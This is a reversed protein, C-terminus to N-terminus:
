LVAEQNVDMGRAVHPGGESKINKHKRLLSVSPQKPTTKRTVTYTYCATSYKNKLLTSLGIILYRLLYCSYHLLDFKKNISWFYNCNSVTINEFFPRIIFLCWNNKSELSKSWLMSTGLRVQTGIVHVIQCTLFHEM